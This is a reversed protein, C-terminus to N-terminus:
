VAEKQIFVPLTKLILKLDFLMSWKRAYTKDLNIREEYTLDDTGRKEVQWLGTLGSPALFREVSNDKTLMRAEYLPLPRNGVISMDGKIINFLQPLEDLSTNRLFQGVRTVRPDNKIKYFVEQEDTNAYENLHSLSALKTDAGVEMTRFKYFNFIMYGKGARESIYLVPGKSAIKILIAVFVLIPSLLILAIGAFVLDFIRKCTYNVAKSKNKLCISKGERKLSKIKNLFNIKVLLDDFSTGISFYGDVGLPFDVKKNVLESEQTLAIIVTNSLCGTLRHDVLGNANLIDLFVDEVLIAEPMKGDQQTWNKILSLLKDPDSIEVLDFADFDLNETLFDLNEGLHWISKHEKFKLTATSQDDYFSLANAVGRALPTNLLAM